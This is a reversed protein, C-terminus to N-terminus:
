DSTLHRRRFCRPTNAGHMASMVFQLANGAIMGEFIALVPLEALLIEVYPLMEENMPDM